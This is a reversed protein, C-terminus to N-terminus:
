RQRAVAPRDQGGARERLGAERRDADAQRRDRGRDAVFEVEAERLDARDERGV